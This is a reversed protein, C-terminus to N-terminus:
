ANADSSRFFGSSSLEAAKEQVTRSRLSAHSGQAHVHLLKRRARTRAQVHTRQGNEHIGETMEGAVDREECSARALERWLPYRRRSERALADSARGTAVQQRGARGSPM